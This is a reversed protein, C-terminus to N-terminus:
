SLFRGLATSASQYQLKLVIELSFDRFDGDSKVLSTLFTSFFPLKGPSPVGMYERYPSAGVFLTRKESIQWLVPDKEGLNAM